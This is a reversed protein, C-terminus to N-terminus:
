DESSGGFRSNRRVPREANLIMALQNGTFPRETFVDVLVFTYSNV